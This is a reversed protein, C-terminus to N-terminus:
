VVDRGGNRPTGTERRHDTERGRRLPITFIFTAGEGPRSEVWIHGGHAEVIHRSIALGLGSGRWAQWRGPAGQYFKQFIREVDEPPVGIGSDKVRIEVWREGSEADYQMAASILIEGREPTFKVANNLLNDLVQQIRDEDVYFIPLTSPAQVTVRQHKKQAILGVSEVSRRVLMLLDTPGFSYEMKQAEMRSLDLIATLQRFLRESNSRVVQVIERQSTNLVGPAEELLLASGEQIATLPTRLEHSIQALFDGQREDLEALRETMQNFSRIVNAVERPGQPRLSRRFEGLGVRQMEHSLRELPQSIRLANLYCLIVILGFVGVFFGALLKPTLAPAQGAAALDTTSQAEGVRILDQIAGVIRESIDTREQKWNELQIGSASVGAAYRAYLTRIQRILAHEEPTKVVSAIEELIVSFEQSGQDFHELLAPAQWVLYKEISRRQFLFIELLRREQALRVANMTLIASTRDSQRYFQLLTSISVVLVLAILILHILAMRWFITLRM